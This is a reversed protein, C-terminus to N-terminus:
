FLESSEEDDASLGYGEPLLTSFMKWLKQFTPRLDQDHVLGLFMIM